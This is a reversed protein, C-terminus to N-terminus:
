TALRLSFFFCFQCLPPRNMKKTNMKREKPLFVDIGGESKKIKIRINNLSRLQFSSLIGNFIGWSFLYLVLPM